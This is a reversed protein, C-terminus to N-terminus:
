SMDWPFTGGNGNDYAEIERDIFSDLSQRSCLVM